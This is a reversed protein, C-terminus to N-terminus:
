PTDTSIHLKVYRIFVWGVIYVWANCVVFNKSFYLASVFAASHLECFSDGFIYHNNATNYIASPYYKWRFQKNQEDADLIKIFNRYKSWWRRLDQTKSSFKINVEVIRSFNLFGILDSKSPVRCEAEINSVYFPM